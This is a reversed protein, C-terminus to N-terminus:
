VNQLLDNIEYYIRLCIGYNAARRGGGGRERETNSIFLSLPFFPPPLSVCFFLPNGGRGWESRPTRKKLTNWFCKQEEIDWLHNLWLVNSKRKNFWRQSISSCFHKQFVRFFLVGRDSHPLPPFGSKKQTERGGGKKGKDRKM